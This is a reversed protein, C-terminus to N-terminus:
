FIRRGLPKNVNVPVSLSTGPITYEYSGIAIGLFIFHDIFPALEFGVNTNTQGERYRDIDTDTLTFM